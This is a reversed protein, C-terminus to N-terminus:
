KIRLSMSFYTDGPINTGNVTVEIKQGATVDNGSFDVVLATDALPSPTLTEVTSGNVNLKVTTRGAANECRIICKGVEVDVPVIFASSLSSSTARSTGSGLPMFYETRAVILRAASNLMILFGADPLVLTRNAALGEPGRLTTGYTDDVANRVAIGAEGAPRIASALRNALQAEQNANDAAIANELGVGTSGGDEGGEDDDKRDPELITIGGTDNLPDFAEIKYESKNANYRMSFMVWLKSQYFAVETMDIQDFYLTGRMINTTTRRQAMHQQVLKNGIFQRDTTDAGVRWNDETYSSDSLRLSGRTAANSLNDGLFAEGLELVDRANNDDIAKFIVTDGSNTENDGIRVDFYQVTIVGDAFAAATIASSTTGTMDYAIVDVTVEIGTSDAPLGITYIGHNLIAGAGMTGELANIAGSFWECRNSEDTTWFQNQTYYSFFDLFEGDLIVTGGNLVNMQRKLYYDGCKIKAQLKYRLFRDNGTRTADGEHEMKMHFGITLAQSAPIIYLDTTVTKTGFNSEDWDENNIVPVWGSFKYELTTKNVPNLFAYQYGTLRRAGTTNNIPFFDSDTGNQILTGDKKYEKWSKATSSGNHVQRSQFYWVGKDQVLTMQFTKCIGELIKYASKYELVGNENADYMEEHVFGIEAFINYAVAGGGTGTLYGMWRVGRVYPDDTAWFHSLRTKNLCNLLHSIITAQGTYATGDNTYDIGKLNGIDDSAVIDFSYPTNDDFESLDTLIVGCWFLDNDGDPDRYIGVTMRGEDATSLDDIFDEIVNDDAAIVLIPFTCSSACIPTFLEEAKGDYELIFGDEGNHIETTTGDFDQDHISVRYIIGKDNQFEYYLREAM